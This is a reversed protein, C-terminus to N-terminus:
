HDIKAPAAAQKARRSRVAHFAVRFLGLFAFALLAIATLGHLQERPAGVDDGADRVLLALGIFVFALHASFGQLSAKGLTHTQCSFQRRGM